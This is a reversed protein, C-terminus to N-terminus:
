GGGLTQSRSACYTAEYSFTVIYIILKFGMCRICAYKPASQRSAICYDHHTNDSRWLFVVDQGYLRNTSLYQMDAM